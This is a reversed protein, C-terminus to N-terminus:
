PRTMSVVMMTPDCEGAVQTLVWAGPGDNRRVGADTMGACAPIWFFAAQIGAQAPIVIFVGSHRFAASRESQARPESLLRTFVPEVFQRM